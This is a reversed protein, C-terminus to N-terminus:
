KSSATAILFAREKDLQAQKRAPVRERIVPRLGCRCNWPSITINRAAQEKSMIAGHWGAHLPRVHSDNVTVWSVEILEDSLKNMEETELIISRQSAQGIETSSIAEARSTTVNIRDAIAQHIDDVSVFGLQEHLISKTDQMLEDLWKKLKDNAREHLFSLENSHVDTSILATAGANLSPLKVIESAPLLAKIDRDAIEIGRKYAETQYENQWPVSLYLGIAREEFKAMFANIEQQQEYTVNTVVSSLPIERMFSKLDAAKRAIDALWRKEITRTKNPNNSLAM